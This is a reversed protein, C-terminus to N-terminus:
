LKNKFQTMCILIIYIKNAQKNTQKLTPLSFSIKKNKMERCQQEKTSTMLNKQNSILLAYAKEEEEGEEELNDKENHIL